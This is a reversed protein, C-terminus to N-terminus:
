LARQNACARSCFRGERRHPLFPRGCKECEYTGRLAFVGFQNEVSAADRVHDRHHDSEAKVQLNELRNDQRDGNVHHVHIGSPLDFGAEHMVYRHELAYGDANAVPHGPVYVRVYGGPTVHRKRGYGRCEACRRSKTRKERGCDCLDYSRRSARGRVGTAGPPSLTPTPRERPSSRLHDPPTGAM